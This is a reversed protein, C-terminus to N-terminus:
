RVPPIASKRRMAPKACGLLRRMMAGHELLLQVKEGTRTRRRAPWRPEDERWRRRSRIEIVPGQDGRNRVGTECFACGKGGLYRPALQRRGNRRKRGQAPAEGPEAALTRDGLLDGRELGQDRDAAGLSRPGDRLDDLAADHMARAQTDGDRCGRAQPRLQRHVGQM